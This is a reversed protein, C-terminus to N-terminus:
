TQHQGAKASSLKIKALIVNGRWLTNKLAGVINEGKATYGKVTMKDKATKGGEKAKRRRVM